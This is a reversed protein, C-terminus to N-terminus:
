WELDELAGEVDGAHQRVHGREVRAAILDPDLRLAEDYDDLALGIEGAEYRCAARDSYAAAIPELAIARDFSQIAEPCRGEKLLLNGRLGWLLALDPALDLARDFDALALDNEGAVARGMGRLGIARPHRSDLALARGTDKRMEEYREERRSRFLM